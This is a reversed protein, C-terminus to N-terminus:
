RQRRRMRSRTRRGVLPSRLPFLSLQDEGSYIAEADQQVEADWAYWAKLETCILRESSLVASIGVEGARRGIHSKVSLQVHRDISLRVPQRYAKWGMNVRSSVSTRRLQGEGREIHRDVREIRVSHDPTPAYVASPLGERTPRNGRRAQLDLEAISPLIDRIWSPQGEVLCARVFECPRGPRPKVEYELEVHADLHASFHRQEGRDVSASTHLPDNPLLRGCGSHGPQFTRDFQGGIICLAESRCVSMISWKTSTTSLM